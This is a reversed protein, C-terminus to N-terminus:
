VMGTLTEGEVFDTAPTSDSHYVDITFPPPTAEPSVGHGYPGYQCADSPVGGHSYSLVTPLFLWVFLFSCRTYKM